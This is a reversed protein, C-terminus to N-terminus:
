KLKRYNKKVAQSVETDGNVVLEVVEYMKIGLDIATQKVAKLVRDSTAITKTHM